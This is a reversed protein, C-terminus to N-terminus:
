NPGNPGPLRLSFKCSVMFSLPLSLQIPIPYQLPHKGTFKLRQESSSNRMAKLSPASKSQQLMPQPLATFPSSLFFSVFLLFSCFSCSNPSFSFRKEKEKEGKGWVGCSVGWAGVYARREEGDGAGQMFDDEDDVGLERLELEEPAEEPARFM